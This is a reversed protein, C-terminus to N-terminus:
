RIHFPQRVDRDHTPTAMYHVENDTLFGFTDHNLDEVDVQGFRHQSRFRLRGGRRGSM